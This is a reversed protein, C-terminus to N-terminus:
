AVILFPLCAIPWPAVRRTLGYLLLACLGRLSAMLYRITLLNTGFLKFALAFLYFVGPTYYTTFDRYPLQGDLVRQSLDLFYGEDVLDIWLHGSWAYAAVIMLLGLAVSAAERKGM